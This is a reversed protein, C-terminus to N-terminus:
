DPLFHCQNAEVYSWGDRGEAKLRCHPAYQNIVRQTRTVHLGHREPIRNGDHDTYATSFVADGIGFIPTTRPDLLATAM